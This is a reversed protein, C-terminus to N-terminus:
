ESMELPFFRDLFAAKFKEWDLPGVDEPREAKWQNYWVQAVGKLQYAALKVKEVLTVGMIMLVKYVEDIFEQPYKEVKSGHFQDLPNMRTFDRVRSATMSVNPNMPVLVERNEQATVVEALVQFTVRFEVSSIKKALPDVPVHPSQPPAKQEANERVNRRAYARRTAM